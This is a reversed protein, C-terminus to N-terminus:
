LQVGGFAELYTGFRYDTDSEADLPYRLSGVAGGGAFFSLHKAVQARLAARVKFQSQDRRREKAGFFKKECCETDGFLHQASLDPEFYLRKDVVPVSFGLGLGPGLQTHDDKRHVAFSLFTYTYRTAFKVAVNGHSASSGWLMPHVGGSRTVSVLGLPVGDVDDAINVLGMQLGRVKAAVNILGLQAGRVDAARNFPAIQFGDLAGSDVNAVMALQAGTTADRVHNVGMSLQVGELSGASNFAAGAQIASVAGGVWNGLLGLEIGALRDSVRNFVGLELGDVEGVRGYIANFSLYTRLEPQDMNTAVPYFFSANGIRRPAKEVPRPLYGFTAPQRQPEPPAVTSPAPAPLPPATVQDRALNGVLLAATTVVESAAPPAEVVRTVTGSRASTVSVALERTDARFTVTVHSAAAAAHESGQLAVEVGLEAAIADRLAEASVDPSDSHVDLSTTEGVTGRQEAAVEAAPTAATNALAAPAHLWPVVALLGWAKVRLLGM